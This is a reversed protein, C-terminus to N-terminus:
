RGGAQAGAGVMERQERIAQEVQRRQRLRRRRHRQWTANVYTGFLMVHALVLFWAVLLSVLGLVVGYRNAGGLMRIYIPFAQAMLVFLAAALLAGPWVDALHQGANPVTRDLILFLMLASLLALLYGVVQYQLARLAWQEFYYPLDSQNVFFTPAISTLLSLLFFFAFVLIIFFGRQKEKVFGANRVGYIRNMCRALCSVFGTGVWAFGILSIAGFWGSNNRATLATELAEQAAGHPLGWFSAYMTVVLVKNIKLFLGAVSILLFMTPVLAVLANFALAAALDGANAQQYGRIMWGPIALLTGGFSRRRRRAPKARRGNGGFLISAENAAVGLRGRASSQIHLM